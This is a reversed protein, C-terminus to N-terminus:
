CLYQHIFISLGDYARSLFDLVGSPEEVPKPAFSFSGIAVGGSLACGTIAYYCDPTTPTSVGQFKGLAIIVRFTAPAIAAPHVTTRLGAASVGYEANANASSLSRVLTGLPTNLTTVVSLFTWMWLTKM